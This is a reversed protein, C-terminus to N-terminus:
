GDGDDLLIEAVLHALAGVEGTAALVEWALPGADPGGLQLWRALAFGAALGALLVWLRIPIM